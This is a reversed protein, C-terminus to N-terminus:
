GEVVTELPADPPEQRCRTVDLRPGEKAVRVPQEAVDLRGVALEDFAADRRVAMLAVVSSPAKAILVREHAPLGILRKERDLEDVRTMAEAELHVHPAIELAARQGLGIGVAPSDEAIQHGVGLSH